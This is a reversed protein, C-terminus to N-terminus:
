RARWSHRAYLMGALGLAVGVACVWPWDGADHRSTIDLTVLVILAVAWALTGVAFVAIHRRSNEARPM